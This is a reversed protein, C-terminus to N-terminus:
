LMIKSLKYIIEMETMLINICIIQLAIEVFGLIVHIPTEIEHATINIM